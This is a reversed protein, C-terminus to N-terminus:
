RAAGPALRRLGTIQPVDGDQMRFEVEVQEGPVLDRPRRDPPPLRFDMVMQPWKLSAIPPHDLTVTDGALAEIRAPTRHVVAEPAPPAGNLRAEVGRLSAESDILFQSSLVVRQGAALGALVETQGGAELGTKVEVPRFHGDPEALMVVSRRGTHIVADTPVLLSAKRAPGALQLQVFMGPVLRGSPNALELRAKQTRTAPDVDPLLAQVRGEFRQGPVAPSTALVPAGPRLQASQSEPVQGEAWVTATGQLRLLPMGPMVTAGERSMLETVLGGIPATLTVRGQVQQRRVVQEILAEDMGVQRMRSRAAERLADAFPGSMRAAALFDEQAAVWDPVYLDLLPAGAPVRDFTARVHLKEVFGMARAAVVEQLRENWAVNGAAVVATALTGSVVEATRLGLNQQVRPSVTVTAVDTAGQGAGAYRPVLMMEMFPSKAPADFNKGPVMPDHYNQIRLGTVPDIDGAKLGDRIHRRTAEEGQPITWTSPDAPAAAVAEPAAMMAMGQTMGLWWAGGGVAALALGSVILLRLTKRNM